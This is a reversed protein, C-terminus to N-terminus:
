VFHEPFKDMFEDFMDTIKPNEKESLEKLISTRQKQLKRVTADIERIKTAYVSPIQSIVYKKFLPLVEEDCQRTELSIHEDTISSINSIALDIGCGDNYFIKAKYLM